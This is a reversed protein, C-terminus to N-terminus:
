IFFLLLQLLPRKSFQCSSLLSDNDTLPLITAAAPVTYMRLPNSCTNKHILAPFKDSIPLKEMRVLFIQDLKDSQVIVNYSIILLGKKRLIFFSSKLVQITMNSQKPLYMYNQPESLYFVCQVQGFLCAFQSSLKRGQTHM